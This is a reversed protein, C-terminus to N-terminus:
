RGAIASLNDAVARFCAVVSDPPNDLVTPKGRRVSQRVEPALKIYGIYFLNCALYKKIMEVFRKGVTIDATDKVMNLVLLDRRAMLWEKVRRGELPAEKMLYDIMEHMTAFGNARKPDSFRSIIERIDRRGPFLRMVGRVLASKLFGYANEISTPLSDTVLVGFPFSAYFDVVNSNTGAGLDVFIYDASLKRINSIIKKKQTFKPNALEYIDSAGSILWSKPVATPLAVDSLAPIRGTLFDQLGVAPRQVGLCLHLNAGGLDADVFGVSCNKRTALIAGINAVVTSKGVGGKGSGVSVIIPENM